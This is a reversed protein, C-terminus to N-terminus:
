RQRVKIEDLSKSLLRSIDIDDNIMNSLQARVYKM